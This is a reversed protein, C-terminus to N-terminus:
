VCMHTIFNWYIGTERSYVLAYDSLKSYRSKGSNSGKVLGEYYGVIWDTEEKDVCPVVMLGKESLPVMILYDRETKKLIEDLSKRSLLINTGSYPPECVVFYRPNTMHALETQKELVDSLGNMLRKGLSASASMISSIFETIAVTEGKKLYETLSDKDYDKEEFYSEAGPVDFLEDVYAQEYNYFDAEKLLEFNVDEVNASAVAKIEDDSVGWHEAMIRNVMMFRTGYDSTVEVVFVIIYDVLYPAYPANGINEINSKNMLKPLIFEKAMEWDNIWSPTSMPSNLIFARGDM